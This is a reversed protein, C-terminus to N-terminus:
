QVVFQKYSRGLNRLHRKLLQVLDIPLLVLSIQRGVPSLRREIEDDRAFLSLPRGNVESIYWNCLSSGVMSRSRCSLGYKAALGDPLVQTVESTGHGRVVGLSQGESEKDVMMVMANPLRRLLLEVLPTCSLQKLARNLKQQSNVSIGCVSLISDGLHLACSLAPQDRWRWGCLWLAGHAEAFVLASLVTRRPLAVRIGSRCSM